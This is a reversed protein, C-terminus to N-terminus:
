IIIPSDEQSGDTMILEMEYQNITNQLGLFRIYNLKDSLRKDVNIIKVEDTVQKIGKFLRRWAKKHNNLTDFQALYKNKLNIIFYSEPKNNNIVQYLVYNGEVITERQFDWSYFQQNPLNDWNFDEISMKKLELQGDNGIDINGAYCIYEKCIRFGISKYARIAKENKTIVELTSKEIGNHRLDNIAFDYISKVIRKGRYAPIVGTGTNFATKINFRKDIAHIIFGVLKENDFMGYSLSFDVKAAKWRQKYYNIDTPMKVYYNEFALLFCDLVEHFSIKNLKKVTMKFRPLKKM